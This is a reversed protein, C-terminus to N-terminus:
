PRGERSRLWAHLDRFFAARESSFELVHRAGAYTKLTKDAAPLQALFTTNAANDCIGDGGAHAMFVPMTLRDAHDQIFRRARDAESYFSATAEHLALPDARIFRVFAPDDSFMEPDLPVPLMTQHGTLRYRAVALKEELPLDTLTYIGPTSLILARVIEPRAAVFAAAPIAGFCHGLVIVQDADHVGLAFDAVANLDDVWEQFNRCEGRAAESLGSGRRDPAYVPYGWAALQAASQAFWASHSQLGHTMLVPPFGPRGPYYRVPIPAAPGAPTLFLLEGRRAAQRLRPPAAPDVGQHDTAGAGALSTWCALGLLALTKSASGNQTPRYM